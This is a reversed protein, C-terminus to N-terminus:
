GKTKSDADLEECKVLGQERKCKLYFDGRNACEQYREMDRVGVVKAPNGGVISGPPCSKTVVAGTAVISGEGITVGPMIIARMGIWVCREITVPRLLEVEDYPIMRASKYNHLSTLILVEPAVISHAEINLGGRGSLYVDPGIYVSEGIRVREPYDIKVTM